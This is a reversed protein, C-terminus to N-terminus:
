IDSITRVPGVFRSRNEGRQSPSLRQFMTVLRQLNLPSLYAQYQLNPNEALATKYGLQSQAAQKRAFEAFPSTDGQGIGLSSLHRNYAADQNSELYDSGLQTKTQDKKKDLMFRNFSYFPDNATPRWLPKVAM